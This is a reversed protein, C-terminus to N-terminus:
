FLWLYTCLPCRTDSNVAVSMILCGVAYICETYYFTRCVLNFPIYKIKLPHTIGLVTTTYPTLAFPLLHPARLSTRLLGWHTSESAEKIGRLVGHSSKHSPDITNASILPSFHDQQQSWWMCWQLSLHGKLQVPSLGAERIGALSIDNSIAEGNNAQERDPQNDWSSVWGIM